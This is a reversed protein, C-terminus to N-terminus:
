IAAEMEMLDRKAIELEAKAKAADLFDKMLKHLYCFFFKKAEYHSPCGYRKYFMDILPLLCNEEEESLLHIRTIGVKSIGEKAEMFELLRKIKGHERYDTKSAGLVMAYVFFETSKPISLADIYHLEIKHWRKKKAYFEEADPCYFFYKAWLLSIGGRKEDELIKKELEVSEEPTLPKIERPDRIGPYRFGEEHKQTSLRYVECPDKAYPFLTVPVHREGHTLEALVRYWPMEILRREESLVRVDRKSRRASAASSAVSRAPVSRISAVRASRRTRASDANTFGLFAGSAATIGATRM